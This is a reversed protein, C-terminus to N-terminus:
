TLFAFLAATEEMCLWSNQNLGTRMWNTITGSVTSVSRRTTFERDTKPLGKGSLTAVLHLDQCCAEIEKMSHWNQPFKAYTAHKWPAVSGLNGRAVPSDLTLDVLSDEWLRIMGRKLLFLSM